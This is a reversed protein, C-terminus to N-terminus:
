QDIELLTLPAPDVETVCGKEFIRAKDLIRGAVNHRRAEPKGMWLQTRM